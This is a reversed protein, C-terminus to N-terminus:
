MFGKQKHAKINVERSGIKVIMKINHINMLLPTEDM